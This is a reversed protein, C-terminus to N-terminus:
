YPFPCMSPRRIGLVTKVNQAFNELILYRTNMAFLWLILLQSVQYSPFIWQHCFPCYARQYSTQHIEYWMLNCDTCYYGLKFRNARRMQTSWVNTEPWHIQQVHYKLNGQLRSLCNQDATARINWVKNLSIRAFRILISQNSQFGFSHIHINITFHCSWCFISIFVLWIFSWIYVNRFIFLSFRCVFLAWSKYRM